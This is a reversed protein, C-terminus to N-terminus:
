AYRILKDQFLAEFETLTGEVLLDKQCIWANSMDGWKFVIYYWKETAVIKKVKNLHKKGQYLISQNTIYEGNITIKIELKM